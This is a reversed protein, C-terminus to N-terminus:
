DIEEVVRSGRYFICVRKGQTYIGYGNTITACNKWVGGFDQILIWETHNMGKRHAVEHPLVHPPSVSSRWIHHVGYMDTLSCGVDYGRAGCPDGAEDLHEVYTIGDYSRVQTVPTACATMLVAIAILFLKKM